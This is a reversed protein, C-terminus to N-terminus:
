PTAEETQQQQMHQRCWPQELIATENQTEDDGDYEVVWAEECDRNAEDMPTDSDSCSVWAWGTLVAGFAVGIALTETPGSLGKQSM